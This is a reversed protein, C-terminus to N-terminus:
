RTEELWRLLRAEIERLPRGLEEELVKVPHNGAGIRRLITPTEKPRGELLYAALVYSFLLDEDRMNNVSKGLLFELHPANPGSLLRRGEELWNVDALQLQQWPPPGVPREAPPPTRNSRKPSPM